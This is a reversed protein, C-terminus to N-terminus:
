NGKEKKSLSKLLDMLAHNFRECTANGHLNYPMTISQEVGYMAYMHKMIENNFCQGQDNHIWAPIGYMYFCKDVLIKAITCVKHNPTVSAQSFKTFADTMVLINEKGDKSPDVKTFDICLLDM